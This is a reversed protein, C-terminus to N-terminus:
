GARYRPLAIALSSPPRQARVAAVSYSLLLALSLPSWSNSPTVQQLGFLVYAPSRCSTGDTKSFRRGAPQLDPIEASSCRSSPSYRRPPRRDQVGAIARQHTHIPRAAIPFSPIIPPLRRQVDLFSSQVEARLGPSPTKAPM